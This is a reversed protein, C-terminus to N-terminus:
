CRFLKVFKIDWELQYTQGGASNLQKTTGGNYRNRVEWCCRGSLQALKFGSQKIHGVRRRKRIKDSAIYMVAADNLKGLENFEDFSTLKLCGVCDLILLPKNIKCLDEFYNKPTAIYEISKDGTILASFEKEAM